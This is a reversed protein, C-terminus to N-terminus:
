YSLWTVSAAQGIESISIILLNGYEDDAFDKFKDSTTLYNAIAPINNSHGCIVVTHGTHELMIKDMAEKGSAEYTIINVGKSKALPAVTQQTRQYNTSYIADIPTKELLTVLKHARLQGAETLSPNKSGDLAKEAHRVLIFTTLKKQAFAEGVLIFVVIVLFARKM